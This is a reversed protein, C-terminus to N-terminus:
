RDGETLSLKNGEKNTITFSGAKPILGNPLITTIKSNTDKNYTKTTITIHDETNPATSSPIATITHSLLGPTLVTSFRSNITSGWDDSQALHFVRRDGTENVVVVKSRLVEANTINNLQNRRYRIANIGTGRSDAYERAEDLDSFFTDNLLSDGLKGCKSAINDSSVDGIAGYEINLDSLSVIIDDFRYIDNNWAICGTLNTTYNNELVRSTVMAVLHINEGIYVPGFPDYASEWGRGSSHLNHWVSVSGSAAKSLSYNLQSLNPPINSNIEDGAGGVIRDFAILYSQATNSLSDTPVAFRIGNTVYVFGQIDSTTSYTSYNLTSTVINDITLTLVGSDDSFQCTAKYDAYSYAFGSTVGHDMSQRSGCSYVSTDAPMNTMDMSVTYQNIPSVGLVGTSSQPIYLSLDIAAMLNYGAEYHSNYSTKSIRIGYNPKGIVTIPDPKTAQAQDNIALTPTIQENNAGWPYATIDWTTNTTGSSVNKICTAKNNTYSTEGDVTAKELKSGTICGQASGITAEDITNNVPLTISLEIVGPTTINYTASYRVVNNNLITRRSENTGYATEDTTVNDITVSQGTGAQKISVNTLTANGENGVAGTLVFRISLIIISLITFLTITILIYLPAHYKNDLGGISIRASKM